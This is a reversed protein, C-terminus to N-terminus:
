YLIRFWSCKLKFVPCLVQISTKWFSSMCIALLCMFLHEINSIVLSICNFSSHSIVECNESHSNDFLCCIFFPYQCPYKSFPVSTCQQHFCLSICDSDFITHVDRFFNFISSGYLGAIGSIFIWWFLTGVKIWFSIYAGKHENFCEEFYGLYLLM